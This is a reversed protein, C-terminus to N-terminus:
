SLARKSRKEQIQSLVEATDKILADFIGEALQMKVYLEDEDYNVWQSEEEHLEQVLIHDVRDRKKRGFKLMKQWDTKQNHDKKLGYLKLVETTIFVQVRTIDGPSKVRHFYSSNMRRPKVWQPQHANPDEAFIEQIIEWTLDYVAQRYSRVCQGEQDQGIADCGLFEESPKLVPLGALTQTGQGLKFRDWIEQTAAHVLKEVEPASHPVVMAPQEPLKPQLPLEPRPPTKVQDGLGGSCASLGEKEQQQRQKQRQQERHSSLGYDEDFWDQEDGLEDLLERSLELEALRKALEEQGSAGLVPSEPRNCLEPSSVQEEQEADLFFPLGDRQAVSQPQSVTEGGEEESFIDDQMQNAASIKEEKAKRIQAFQKVADKMFNNLIKDTFASLADKEVTQEPTSKQHADVGKREILTTTEDLTKKGLAIKRDIDISFLSTPVDELDLIITKTRGNSMPYEGEKFEHSNTLNKQHEAPGDNVDTPGKDESHYSTQSTGEKKNRLHGGHTKEIHRKKPENESQDDLFSDEDETTEVYIDFKEPLRSIKDPPAFIGHGEECEFYVVGDYTGNNSGESKDLEVGAWFGNAFSTHGKFRLTGPQVNSVLVRDGITFNPMEDVSPSPPTQSPSITPSRNSSIVKEQSDKTQSNLDLLRESRPSGSSAGSRESLDEGIEDESSYFPSRSHSGERTEQRSPSTPKSGQNDERLSSEVSSEFDEHYGDASPPSAEKGKASFDRKSSFADSEPTYSREKIPSPSKEDVDLSSIPSLGQEGKKISDHESLSQHQQSAPRQELDLKLLHDFHRDESRSQSHESGESKVSDLEEMVESRLSSVVSEDGSDTAQPRAPERLSLAGESPQRPLHEPSLMGTLGNTHEPSGYVPTPTVTPPDEDSSEEHGSTYKSLGSPTLDDQEVPSHPLTKEAKESDSLVKWNKSTEPRYPPPPKIKPKETASIPAKIQPKASPTSDPEKNLETKTKEIFDNYSELQKLLSAEQAKLREKHRKKQEKKLQYVVSKRKRLEEKLARIRSEIDSQDSMPETHIDSPTDTAKPDHSATRSSSRLQMKSSSSGEPHTNTDLNAKPSPSRKSASPSDFDQTYISPSHQASPLESVSGPQDTSPIDPQQSGSLETHVSSGTVVPSYDGESVSDRDTRGEPSHQSPSANRSGNPSAIPSERQESRQDRDRPRDRDWAALAQKEMHRVEAEEADLRQKWELLEEAHRRRQMLGQERKTLFRVLQNYIFLQFKPHLNPFCLSLSAWHHATFLCFFYHVPSCHKEEMHSRMKKLKQMISSTESGAVSLPSASRVDGDTMAASPSAAADIPESVPTEPPTNSTGACKLREKLKLTAHRMREIEEQQKLLLQREKRAARNAEQLRKIEGQEQQLKMLLGRQKKRIPPMKDDEGKDRLRRKQHELWALEAKTKEKLAKQRLRLLSSQHHARVEEEKMYQRVMDMTFRSFSDQGSSFPMSGDQQKSSDQVTTKEQSPEDDSEEHPGRKKEVAGRRHSESPLLSRFSREEIEDETMSEDFKLSYETAFSTSDKEDLLSQVSDSPISDDAVTHAEDEVSSNGMEVKRRERKESSALSPSLHSSSEGGSLTPRRSPISDSRSDLSSLPEETRTWAASVESRSSDTDTRPQLQKMFSQRHQRQQDFLTTIPAAAPVGIAGAIQSRALDTMEKIQRAAEATYRVSEAQQSIMKTTAEQMGGLSQQQTQAMNEQLEVHARAAKQRTEELQHQTELAEQEAKVKLEYLDREHRQQQAKLIQALSVSEHQALSVGRLREVDGLQRVSEEISELYHLEASMRQQLVGPTYHLEGAAKPEARGNAPSTSKGRAASSLSSSSHPSGSGLGLSDVGALSASSPSVRPSGSGTPSGPPSLGPSRPSKKNDLGLSRLSHGSAGGLTSDSYSSKVLNHISSRESASGGWRSDRTLAELGPSCPSRQEEVLTADSKDSAAGRKVSGKSHPSSVPTSSSSHHSPLDVTRTDYPSRRSMLEDYHSNGSTISRGNYGKKSQSSGGSSCSSVFDEEYMPAGDVTSAASLGCRVAPSSRDAREEGGVKAHNLLHNKTFINIVSHPSGKALEEWPGRSSNRQQSLPSFGPYKEAERQFHSIPQFGERQGACFDLAGLREAPQPVGKINTRPSGDGESLSGESLLPGESISEGSSDHTIAGGKEEDPQKHSSLGPATQPRSGPATTRDRQERFSHLNGVGPLAGNYTSQGASLLRQIRMSLEDAADARERVPPSVPKAWRGDDPPTLGTVEMDRACSYNIGAGALKRAESEVRTSLSAATAKLAEIRNMKTNNGAGNLTSHQPRAPPNTGRGGSSGATGLDLLPSFLQDTHPALATSPRVAPSLRDPQLWSPLGLGLENRSLPPPPPESLSLDSSSSASQPREQRKNEKDSEGSPQYLSKQQYIVTTSAPQTQPPLPEEGLGAQELLLKTYTEQLRKQVPNEPVAPGKNAVGERQKRYLEQLRQSKREAEERQARREEVQRRKREEQQRAIYQRVSDADYHRKRPGPESPEQKNRKAPSASRSGWLSSGGTTWATTRARSESGRRPEAPGREEAKRKLQLDDLIGRIDASLNDTNTARDDAPGASQPNPTPQTTRDRSSPRSRRNLEPRHDSNSLPLPGTRALRDTPEPRQERPLRPAPGLVMKVLKQGERWSTTSIVPKTKPDPVSASKHVKRVPKSPKREKAKETPRLQPKTSDSLQRSLDRYIERSLNHFEEERWVKGDPTRIKTESRSFGKYIPAPPAAAVKRVKATPVTTSEVAGTIGVPQELYELLGDREAAEELHERQRRIREKLKELKDDPQRRRLNELRQSTSGPSSSASNEAPPPAPGELTHAKPREEPGEERNPDRAAATHGPPRLADLAPRDNLYRVVTSDLASWHTSDLDGRTQQDRTDSQYVLQSLRSDPPPPNAVESQLSHAELQSSTLPPPTAERYSALPEKFEVCNNRRVNSDQTTNRLPSRSSKDPSRRSRTSSKSTGGAQACDETRPGDRRSVKRTAGGSSKKTDMVSELLVGSGPAAELRNEIHRLAAKTQNLSKWAASLERGNDQGTPQVPATLHLESRKSSWM